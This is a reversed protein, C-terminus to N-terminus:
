KQSPANKKKFNLIIGLAVSLLAALMVQYEAPLLFTLLAGCILCFCAAAAIIPVLRGPSRRRTAWLAFRKVLHKETIEDDISSLLDLTFNHQKSM